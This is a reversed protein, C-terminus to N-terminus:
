KLYNKISSKLPVIDFTTHYGKKRRDQLSTYVIHAFNNVNPSVNEDWLTILHSFANKIGM